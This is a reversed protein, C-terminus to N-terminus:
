LDDDTFINRGGRDSTAIRRDFAAPQTFEALILVQRYMDDDRLKQSKETAQFFAKQRIRGGFFPNDIPDHFRKGQM